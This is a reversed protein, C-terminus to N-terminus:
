KASRTVALSSDRSVSDPYAAVIAAQIALLCGNTYGNRLQAVISRIIMSEDRNQISIETAVGVVLLALSLCWTVRHDM